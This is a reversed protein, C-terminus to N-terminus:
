ETREIKKVVERAASLEKMMLREDQKWNCPTTSASEWDVLAEPFEMFTLLKEARIRQILDVVLAPDDGTVLLSEDLEATMTRKPM